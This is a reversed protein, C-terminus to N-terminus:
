LLNENQKSICELHFLNFAEELKRTSMEGQYMRSRIFLTPAPNSFYEV